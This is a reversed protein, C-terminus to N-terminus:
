QNGRLAILQNLNQRPNQRAFDYLVKWHGNRNKDRREMLLHMWGFQYGEINIAKYDLRTTECDEISKKALHEKLDNSILQPFLFPYRNNFLENDFHYILYICDDLFTYIDKGRFRYIIDVQGSGLILGDRFEDRFADHYEEGDCEFAIKKNDIIIVFDLRFKGAITEVEYQATITLWSFLYKELREIFMEELPSELKARDVRPAFELRGTFM